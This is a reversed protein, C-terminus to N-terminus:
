RSRWGAGGAVAVVVVQEDGVQDGLGLRQREPAVPGVLRPPREGAVARRRRDDRGLQRRRHEALEDGEYSCMTNTWPTTHPMSLKSWHPTSSPLSSALRMVGSSVPSAVALVVRRRRRQDAPVARVALQGAGCALQVLAKWADNPSCIQVSLGGHFHSRSADARERLFVVALPPVTLVVSQPLRAVAARPTSRRRLQRHRRRRLDVADSNLLEDWRGAVPCASGTTTSRTPTANVVVLVPRGDGSPDVRLWAFVSHEADHAEVWQMGTGGCDGRHLAPERRYLANLDAVLRRVGDHMPADHLAWDLTGEHAWENWPALEGGMFLLKKGPQFWEMAYLLRLNAFKQWDDGPMKALLSGKGHVVEDHSLPLVYNESGMYVSRFTIESHHWKRHIPDRRLYQLTDHM